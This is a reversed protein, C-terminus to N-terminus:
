IGWWPFKNFKWFPFKFFPKKFFPKGFMTPGWRRDLTHRSRM